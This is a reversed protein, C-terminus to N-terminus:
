VLQKPLRTDEMRALHGLWQQHRCRLTTSLPEPDGYRRRLEANSIISYQQDKCSVGLLVRLLQQHFIDIRREDCQLTIWCECGYLLVSLVCATYLLRKTHLSLGPTDLTGRLAGFARAALALRRDVESAVRTDSAVLSGLYVFSPVCQVEQGRLLLPLCASMPTDAGCVMFKAKSASVIMGFQCCVNDFTTLATQASTRNLAILVADDAFELDAMSMTLHRSRPGHFLRGDVNFKLIVEDSSTAKMDTLWKEIVSSFYLNFLVPAITCGQRLGNYITISDTHSNGLRVCASMNEHFTSLFNILLPPVGLVALAKWLAARPVSDYAKRLDVFILHGHTQHEYFKEVTQSVTFIQDICSHGRRFGCQTEPLVVDALKQLRYQILSGVVKGIVDLLAIGRWNDCLSLDGKKPIPVLEADRWAQPVSGCEWEYFYPTFTSFSLLAGLSSWKLSSGPFALLETTPYM